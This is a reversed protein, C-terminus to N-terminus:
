GALTTSTPTAVRAPDISLRTYLNTAFRNGTRQMMAAMTSQVAGRALRPLPLEVCLTIDVSLKTHDDDVEELTYVGEAGARENTGAPPQHRFRIEGPAVFTMQETFTPTVSVGLASIGRLHWTWVDGAADIATVLPTLAALTEADALVEWIDQRAAPVVAVSINRSSFTAVAWLAGCRCGRSGTATPQHFRQFIRQM